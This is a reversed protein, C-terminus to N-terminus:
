NLVIWECVKLVVLFFLLLCNNFVVNYDGEKLFFIVEVVKWVDFFIFIVFFCNIIEIFLGLIVFLSDKLVWVEVKDLGFFKNIFMVLIICCVEEVLM